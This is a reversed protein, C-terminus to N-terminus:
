WGTSTDDKDRAVPPPAGCVFCHSTDKPIPFIKNLKLQKRPAKQKTDIPITCACSEYNNSIAPAVPAFSINQLLAFNCDTWHDSL